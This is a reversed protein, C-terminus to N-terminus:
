RHISCTDSKVEEMRCLYYKGVVMRKYVIHNDSVAGVAKSSITVSVFSVQARYLWEEDCLERQVQM